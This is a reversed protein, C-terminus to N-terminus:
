FDKFKLLRNIIDDQNSKIYRLVDPRIKNSYKGFVNQSWKDEVKNLYITKLEKLDIKPIDIIFRQSFEKYKTSLALSYIDKLGGKPSTTYGSFIIKKMNEVTILHVIIDGKFPYAILWGGTIGNSIVDNWIKEKIETKHSNQFIKTLGHSFNVISSLNNQEILRKYKGIEPAKSSNDIFKVSWTKGDIIVDWKEGPQSLTGNYLGAITGEFNHGRTEKSSILSDFYDLFRVKDHPASGEFNVDEGLKFFPYKPRFPNKWLMKKIVVSSKQKFLPISGYVHLLRGLIEEKSLTRSSSSSSSSNKREYNKLYIM